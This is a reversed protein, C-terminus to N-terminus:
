LLTRCNLSLQHHIVDYNKPLSKIENTQSDFFDQGTRDETDRSAMKFLFVLFHLPSYFCIKTDMVKIKKIFSEREIFEGKLVGRWLPKISSKGDYIKKFDFNIM